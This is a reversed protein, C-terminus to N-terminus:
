KKKMLEKAEKAANTDPYKKIIEQFKLKADDAFGSDLLRKAIDLRRSAFAETEALKAEAAKAQAAKPDVPKAETSSTETETPTTEAVQADNTRGFKLSVKAQKALTIVESKDIFISLNNADRVGGQTVAVLEGKTNVLPGGSDGHNTPSTTAVVKCELGEATERKIKIDYVQRVTGDTLLWMGGGAGPNGISYVKQGPTATKESLPLQEINPPMKELQIFALDVKANRILVKSKIAKNTTLSKFYPGDDSILNNKSDYMPFVAYVYAEDAVVHQNTVVIRKAHDVVSGTGCVLHDGKEHLIWCTSRLVTKYIKAADEEARAPSPSILFGIGTLAALGLQLCSRHIM